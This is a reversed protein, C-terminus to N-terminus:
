FNASCPKLEKLSRCQAEECVTQAMLLRLVSFSLQCPLISGQIREVGMLHSLSPAESAPLHLYDRVQGILHLFPSVGVQNPTVEEEEYSQDTSVPHGVPMPASLCQSVGSGGPVATPRGAESYEQFIPFSSPMSKSPDMHNMGSRPLPHSGPMLALPCMGFGVCPVHTQNDLMPAKHSAGVSVSQSPLLGDSMITSLEVGLTHPITESIGLGCSAIIPQGGPM